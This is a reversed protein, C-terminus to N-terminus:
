NVCYGFEYPEKQTRGSEQILKNIFDTLHSYFDDRLDIKITDIKEHLCILIIIHGTDSFFITYFDTSM